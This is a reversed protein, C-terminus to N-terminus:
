RHIATMRRLNEFLARLPLGMVNYYDGRIAKIGIQGIWEQIGYAGAKDLPRYREVYYVIEDPMLEGFEVETSESFTIQRRVDTLTVGTVVTHAHGSLQRLMTMAEREDHPKGLVEGRNIVVTDATLLIDGPQLDGLYPHAKRRSIYAPVDAPNMRAPYTEDIEKPELLRVDIGLGEVLERRRPSASGLLLRRGGMLSDLFSNKTETENAMETLHLTKGASLVSATPGNM